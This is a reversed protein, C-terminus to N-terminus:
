YSIWFKLLLTLSNTVCVPESAYTRTQLARKLASRQFSRLSMTPTYYLRYNILLFFFLFLHPIWWPCSCKYIQTHFFFRCTHFFAGLNRLSVQKRYVPAAAELSVSEQLWHFHRKCLERFSIRPCVLSCPFAQCM